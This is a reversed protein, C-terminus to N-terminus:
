ARLEHLFEGLSESFAGPREVHPLNGAAEFVELRADPALHLWLDATEIPPAKAERGWGIWTPLELRGLAEDVRHNLYGSLYAALPRHAGPQHSSRYHREVRGEDVRRPDAFAENKLYRAIATQSTYLNLASTGLVPLRLMRHVLADRLDPEDGHINVGSPVVLALARLSEPLDVAVQVAYAASLGAAIVVVREGAVDELFDTLQQIYLEDDYALPPKDSHGWGLFDPVYVKLSSEAALREAVARWEEGDHGPGFSHLLVVPPGEGLEQFSIEGFKWAYSKAEGWRPRALRRTSRSILANALAPVGVAAGGLLLGRVLRKRRRRKQEEQSTRAAM